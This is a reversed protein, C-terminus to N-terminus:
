WLAVVLPLVGIIASGVIISVPPLERRTKLVIAMLALSALGTVIASFHLVHVFLLINEANARDRAALWIMGAGVGCALTAMVAMMWAVTAMEVARSNGDGDEGSPQQQPSEIKAM